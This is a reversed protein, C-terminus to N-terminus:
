ALLKLDSKVEYITMPDYKELFWGDREHEKL